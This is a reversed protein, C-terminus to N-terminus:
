SRAALMDTMVKMEATQSKIISQAFDLVMPNSARDVIARSMEVAGTHHTIMLKLFIREAEVGSAAKLEAIQAPTALGPMSTTPMSTGTMSGDTMGTMGTMDSSTDASQGPRTMWTMPPESGAQPLGWASLWGYMQGSQQSQTTAIDYALLRVEPDDTRDRVIMALEVGQNHHVQMDRAFGAEASTNSPHNAGATNVQGVTYGLLAAVIVAVVAVVALAVLRARGPPVVAQPSHELDSEPGDVISPSKEQRM